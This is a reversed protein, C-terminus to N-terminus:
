ERVIIVGSENKAEPNHYGFVGVTSFTYSFYSDPQVVGVSDFEPTRQGSQLQAVVHVPLAGDNHWRVTDGAHIRLNTPSFVGFRYSVTYVRADRAQDTPTPTVTGVVPVVPQRLTLLAVVLLILVLIILPWFHPRHQREADSQRSALIALPDM